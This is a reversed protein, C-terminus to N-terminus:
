GRSKSRLTARAILAFFLSPLEDTCKFLMEYYSPCGCQRRIDRIRGAAFSGLNCQATEYSYSLAVVSGLQRVAHVLARRQIPSHKLVPRMGLLFYRAHSRLKRSHKTQVFWPTM